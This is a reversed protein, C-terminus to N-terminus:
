KERSKEEEGVVFKELDQNMKLGFSEFLQIM